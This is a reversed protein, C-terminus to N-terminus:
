VNVGEKPVVRPFIQASRHIIGVKCDPKAKLKRELYKQFSSPGVYRCGMKEVQDKKLGETVVTINCNEKMSNIMVVETAGMVDGVCGKRCDEIIQSSKMGALASFQVEHSSSLGEYCPSVLIM